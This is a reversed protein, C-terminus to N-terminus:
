GIIQQGYEIKRLVLGCAPAKLFSTRPDKSALAKVLESIPVEKLYSVQICAGVIRRIMFHLFSKGRVEIYYVRTRRVYKMEIADITRVTDRPDDPAVTCFARFDHTGVFVQLAKNLKEFDIPYRVHWGYRAYQPLPRHTFFYYRYTKQLVNRQPHFGRRDASRPEDVSFPQDVENARQSYLEEAVELNRILISPPLLNNWASRLAQPTINLDTVFSAVQGLAHVGTDTRSAGVITIEQHFVKKFTQQLTSVITPLGEQIQWGHYDTGDYAVTMKYRM